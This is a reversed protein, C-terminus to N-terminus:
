PQWVAVEPGKPRAGRDEDIAALAARLLERLGAGTAASVAFLQRDQHRLKAIAGM